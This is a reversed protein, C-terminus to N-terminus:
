RGEDVCAAGFGLRHRDGRLWGSQLGSGNATGGFDAKPQNPVAVLRVIFDGLDAVL